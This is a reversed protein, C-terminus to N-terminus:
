KVRRLTPRAKNKTSPPAESPPNEPVDKSSAIAVEAQPSLKLEQQLEPPLEDPWILRKDDISSMGWIAPWPIKCPFIRDGFRLEATVRDDDLTMKGEFNFSVKLTIVPSQMVDLPLIAGEVQPRVHLFAYDHKLFEELILRKEKSRNM